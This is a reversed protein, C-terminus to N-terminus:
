NQWLENIIQKLIPYLIKKDEPFDDETVLALLFIPLPINLHYAIQELRKISPTAKGKEIECLANTSMDMRWALEKQSLGQQKRLNKIAKGINM